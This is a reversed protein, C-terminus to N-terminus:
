VKIKNYIEMFLMKIEKIDVGKGFAEIFGQGLYISTFIKGYLKVNTNPKVEGSDIAKRIFFAWTDKDARYNNEMTEYYNDDLYYGANFLLGLYATDIRAMVKKDINDKDVGCFAYLRNIREEQATTYIDIFELLTINKELIDEGLVSFTNHSSLFYDEIVKEFLEHKDKCHYFLAGRTKGIAAELDEITVQEYPKSMFLKYAEEYIKNKTATSKQKQITKM